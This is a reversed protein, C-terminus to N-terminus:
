RPTLPGLDVTTWHEVVVGSRVRQLNVGDLGVRAGSPAVGGIAGVHTGELRWRWAVGDGDVLVHVPTVEIDEFAGHVARTRALVGDRLDPAVLLGLADLDGRAVARAWAAVLNGMEERTM